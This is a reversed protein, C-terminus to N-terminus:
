GKGPRPGKDGAVPAKMVGEVTVVAQIQRNDKSRVQQIDLESIMLLQSATEIQYIVDKLQRIDSTMAFQVPVRVYDATDSEVSKMVRMTSFKLNGNEAIKNLTNQIEVAALSPTTGTLLGNEMQRFQRKVAANESVADERRAAIRRYKEVHEQKLAIEDAVSVASVMAPWFRYIAGLLLLIAGAVLIIKRERTLAAFHFM